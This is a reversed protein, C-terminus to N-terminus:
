FYFKHRNLYTQSGSKNEKLNGKSNLELCQLNFSIQVTITSKSLSQKVKGKAKVKVKVMVMVMVMVKVKGSIM